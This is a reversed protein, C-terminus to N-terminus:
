LRDGESVERRVAEGTGSSSQRVESQAHTKGLYDHGKRADKNIKYVSNRTVVLLYDGYDEVHKVPSTHIRVGDLWRRKTDGCIYGYFINFLQDYSWNKLEATIQM